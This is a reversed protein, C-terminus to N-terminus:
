KSQKKSRSGTSKTGQRECQIHDAVEQCHKKELISFHTAEVDYTRIPKQLLENWGNDAFTATGEELGQTARYLVVDIEAPLVSPKYRRYCSQNARYMGLITTFQKHNVEVGANNMSEVIYQINKEHPSQRLRDLDIGLNTEYLGEAMRCIEFLETNEDTVPERQIIAPAFSDILILSIEEGQKLIDRAMEFAVAGGYSQGILTYPGCRQVTKLAALNVQATQEVSALLPTTGDLGVAQLGYFPQNLGMAKSLSQLSLVNGDAGPIGFIPLADGKTQIPVVIDVQPAENSSILGALDAISPATFIVALPLMRDFQKNIKAMLRVASLSHGGLEFFSDRRGIREVKLLEGWISALATEIEGQPAEYAHVAFAGGEPAPLAKRDLKGNPTLPMKEMAVYAAPVMYEPLRQSLFLRVDHVLSEHSRWVKEDVIQGEAVAQEVTGHGNTASKEVAPRFAYLNYLATSELSQSAEYAVEYGRAKLMGTIEALRGSVDHVEIVLQRIKSWHSDKIGKLVDLEGKEVDVKLLDIKEVGNEEVIESITRLQCTYQETELRAELLEDLSGDVMSEDHVGGQQDQQNLLYSKVIQHAEERTTSSSSIVTNHPYFTFVEQKSTEALGCEYVRGALGHLSANLQLSKFVAPIPEFAYITTNRCHQGVFLSFLGINAGVDFVCDGDQLRVGHRLYGDDCFIEQYVFDTESQNQHFVTMGNPLTTYRAEAGVDTKRLRLFEGVPHACNPSPTYYAVLRKEGPRDERAVVVAEQVGAHNMLRAEIEGLEIRFGRIKVQFDTRGVFEITGDERWRGLDGTKYMRTGPLFPNAVFRQETLEPRNLYGRAVQVGGIFLEGIVGMAAVHGRRDLVYMQTNAIPRGIPIINPVNEKPCTWETVDVAAETPGYLNYLKAKPLREAFRRVLMSPLAEGSCVVRKLSSCQRAGHHELFVQLMPPVFHLTTIGQRCITDVLYDPDKHGEPRAMVLRAGTFLPWFFEWVSVDFSFPTKQLVADEENLEYASQMWLLRNVVGRHENMAGKPQGTSGSTYIVYALNNAKVEQRLGVKNAKLEMVCESIEAWQRDLAILRPNGTILGALKNRLEEQTLVIVARSDQLMYALREEPYEPDLPVYAGGAQLIGLLSVVMEVSREMCVGVLDDPKVGQGQLYLAVEHSREYLQEYSLEKDGCVVATKEGNRKVQEIFLQHVCKDKPYEVVTDNYGKLLQRKEAESIYDLDGIRVRPTAVIGRCLGSFHEIMRRITEPKYLATSYAISGTLGEGSETFELSLDFKSVGSELDYRRISANVAQSEANQLTVTVQFLPTIALNRETRVQDVVKEFPADQHEYAELCTMKVKAALEAFTEEAEVQSRMALTNVFMGMLGETEGYQRNAIPSGVCIDSQGTYRYMLAKFAALLVMYLTCGQQGAVEKMQATLQRDVVFGQTAGAFSQVSPRAYDTVLDVGEPVGALKKEWYGLQQKLVGGEELWRRQWVSYDVYQIPLGPLEPRRGERKAELILGLERILIGLSWGDSIIHHMNLMLIHEHEALKIVKGRLLPGRALDFPRKAERQCIERAKSDRAEETECGSLDMCELKFDLRELVLQEAQGERSPFVTRLNEHREIILNFAEELQEIDMEGHVVVAGPLNYGANEPELQQIFWLREQAFSLPLREYKRRDVPRIPPIGSKERGAILEAMQAVSSQEFLAKLPVDIGMESRIRSILQTGLLSHGGLEFFSDNRGIKEGALKLIGAWIEVLQKETDNRPADYEQGSEMEGKMQGLARRDVKGNPNLPIAVLSVMVAPVMFEPLRGRLHERLEENGLEVIQDTKTEKARYFAVIQKNGAEGQAIVACDQIGPHQKLQAEIEGLEIRFGRIKVQTDMRGLYEINGDELWRALDGTKYMRTRPQFPNAVFKEETLEPRNLYGRALGDGAIHLEGRVGVPQVNNNGDLIYVQTNAIPRGISQRANKKRWIYTSYTTDESPGYLDYVKKVGTSSYIKDVLAPSLPEGALNITQVSAPIADLRLLEEMASPVTNILTVANKNVLEVIGLANPTLIVTGGNALTVFIEYVSLDFCISTSAMVGALEERSYVQSAWRVLTVPSHHEIAVGKPQGTSGSTYIVYALDHPKVQQELGIKKAKLGAVCDNIEAWQRDLAILQTDGKALSTLKDRLKEQTLVIMARSDQLMYALREGPYSPDLPVYAGGAQLIGLLSVVMDLLREMCVGVLQDPKVGQQQLYLALNQSREYLQEYTLKEEGCVIATKEGQRAAEEVFLEHLCKDKGYAAESANFDVILQRKEAEGIYDLDCISASPAATIARCLATFHEVMRAITQPKYLATSYETSGTIVDNREAFEVSLDFKSIGSKLPYPRIQQGPTPGLDTNQLIVMIQFLPTIALNREPRVLDVVKEFPADQHEYAGLCTAKIQSLLAAFTDDGKIRNRLVLTNVFMGILGETEGYQRNAIPSGVCIDDQGTYRYLLVNCAALLVMYLTCGQQAALNKLQEALQADLAFEHTAGAFSQVSPRPYDTVLDLSEPVGALKEQWYALQQKLVGGEELWKRQWVSYDVYQIPLPALEPRRGQRMAEMILGLEKILIGLSWGDSIIHHMNLMLIHEHEALKIVKGRLLPGGALDFPRAAEAQCIEKAKDDREECTECQSLDICNLKFDLSNLVLQEAQGERSPFVTRLNEHRGIMQNFAQELQEIDLEGHLIVAGPVNYRASDPEFQHIFWLREQAFSLPLREFKTRDIPQIPAIQSQQSKAILEALHAITTQEFLAKLPLEIGMESRIRSILQTALLSHGGLEFFNDNIGIKEGALKLIGAWIKILQKETDNRPAQYERGSEIAVSMQALARRDVKGSSNLPIAALSVWAAPVMYDPLRRLLHTRLEKKPLQVVRDAQTEKARYFAVIQKNGEQGQAIVASDAIGPHQNLQAEIEGLEIRFGRIKVQTDIRGLYQINGDELWRALDGTKYMRTGPIFPNAVFKEQTLEPRNLYGRALGDGAIHLEGPVGVPQVGNYRDLIYIQTNAIPAGIPVFHRNLRSCDYATVDIAAETPGYLNHLVANPFRTQYEDVSKKGLAEGSCFIQKVCECAAQANDLFTHLMSPVYHLTTVNAQRILNELYRVDKHGGPAAFVISAGVMMPWFFEWVSVDFSYPTKQLVVDNPTLSYRKQMWYIRNMLAQHEVLVGKPNGTSGSTYIVYCLHYPKVERRLEVNNAKLEAVCQSIESWQGDLTVLRTGPVLLPSIKDKLREQTLVVGTQSDRLMYALRDDPYDPDLPLYAGGAEVTGMIGTMMEVSRELCLGVVNDPKVGMFQLYLALDRTKQSLQQYVLLEDGYVVATKEPHLAAQAVFLEHLCKDKPYETQTDNVEVLLRRQEEETAIPYEHLLLDPTKSIESLLICYHGIFRKVTERKYLEPNFKLHLSFAAELEYVELSLDFDGEQFIETVNEPALDQQQPFATFGAQQIFNQYAYTVQFVPNKGTQKLKLNELMLPFPYSSHYLADMVTSHVSRLFDKLELQGECRSRIPVMNIFYGIEGAFKQAPRGVVPMGVIVDKQNTYRHLMLKLVALFIVSPPLSHAKGFERVRRSLDGTLCEVITQGEFSASAMRPLDPILELTPLEGALQQQWYRAHAAGEASALMAEEWAVFEQYGSGVQLARVRKGASLQQYFELLSKLLIIASTGDFVVHHVTLLLVSKRGAQTFLEIRTLPGKNLDFPEKARTRVYALLQEDDSFDVKHRQITTRCDEDLRQCLIGEKEIIRAKLIPFQDLVCEWAQALVEVNIENNIKFCLPVNYASMQPHLKQLIYLGEQGTSLQFEQSIAPAGNKTRVSLRTQNGELLAVIQPKFRVIGAKIESTLVGKQAYCNLQGSEASLKVGISALEDLFEIVAEM